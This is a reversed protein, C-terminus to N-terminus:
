QIGHLTPTNHLFLTPKFFSVGFNKFCIRVFEVGELQRLERSDDLFWLWSGPPNEVSLYAHMTHLAICCQLTFAALDNGTKVLRIASM